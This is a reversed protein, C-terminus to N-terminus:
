SQASGYFQQIKDNMTQMAGNLVGYNNAWMTTFENDSALYSALVAHPHTGQGNPANNVFGFTNALSFDIMFSDRILELTEVRDTDNLIHNFLITEYFAPCITQYGYICLAEIVVGTMERADEAVNKPVMIASASIRLTTHYNEQLEDYKPMPLVGYSQKMDSFYQAQGLQQGYFLGKGTTFLTNGKAEAASNAGPYYVNCKGNNGSNDVVFSKLDAFYDVMKQTPTEYLVMKGTSEDRYTFNAEAAPVFSRMNHGNTVFGYDREMTDVTSSNTAYDLCYGKFIEYTWDGNRVLGYLADVDGEGGVTHNSYLTENVFLVEMYEHMTYAIDGMAFFLKGGFNCENYFGKSWWEKTVDLEPLAMLDTCYGNYQQPSIVTAHGSCMHWPSAGSAVSTALKTTFDKRDGDDCAVAEIDIHVNYQEEIARNRQYVAMDVKNGIDSYDVDYEYLTSERALIKFDAGLFDYGNDTTPPTTPATPTTPTTPTTPETSTTAENENDTTPPTSPSETEPAVDESTATNNQNAIVNANANVDGNLQANGNVGGEITIQCAVLSPLLMTLALLLCLLKTKM